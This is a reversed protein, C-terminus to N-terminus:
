IYITLLCYAFSIRDSNSFFPCDHRTFNKAVLMQAVQAHTLLMQLIVISNTQTLLLIGTDPNSSTQAVFGWRTNVTNFTIEVNATYHITLTVKILTVLKM